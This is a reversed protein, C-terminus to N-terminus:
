FNGMIVNNEPLSKKKMFNLILSPMCITKDNIINM